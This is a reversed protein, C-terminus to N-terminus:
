ENRRSSIKQQCFFKKTTAFDFRVGHEDEGASFFSCGFALFPASYGIDYEFLVLMVFHGKGYIKALKVVSALSLENLKTKEM